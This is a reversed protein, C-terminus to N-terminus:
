NDKGMVERRLAEVDDQSYNFVLSAIEEASYNKKIMQIVIRKSTDETAKEEAQKKEEEFIQAVQTMKIARRIQEATERDIVKDTFALIGSLAFLQQSRDQIQVALDVAKQISEQKEEVKRYSLPYIIFEMLEQDELKEKREVKRKLRGYIGEADLESLFACEMTMKLAGLNYANTVQGRQIDGTYIVVMRLKPCEKEEKQYRNAIGTLYNLYKVKDKESYASEYDVIAATGDTLEFLNDLRLENAKVTPINTPLAQKIEPLDLGYVRFSKGKFQEALVKSTIDKNQYLIETDGM